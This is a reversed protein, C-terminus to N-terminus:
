LLPLLFSFFFQSILVDLSHEYKPRLEPHHSLQHDRQQEHQVGVDAEEEQEGDHLQQQESDPQSTRNTLQQQKVKSFSTM